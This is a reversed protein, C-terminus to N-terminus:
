NIENFFTFNTSKKQEKSSQCEVQKELVTLPGLIVWLKQVNQVVDVQALIYLVFM